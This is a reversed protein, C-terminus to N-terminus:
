TNVSNSRKKFFNSNTIRWISDYPPIYKKRQVPKEYDLDVLESKKQRAPIEELAYLIDNHMAFVEGEMTTIVSVKTKPQIFVQTGNKDFTGYYKSNIKIGNGCDVTRKAFTVLSTEIQEKSPQKEWCSDIGDTIAFKQNFKPLYSKLFENAQELTKVDAEKLEEPLRGQLTKFSREVRPKFQPISSCQLEIGLTRCVQQYQTMTDEAEDKVKKNEYEFVTRKDTKVLCPIGYKELFQRTIEYYAARTEQWDFYAGVIIGTADDIALHLQAKRTGFWHHQCADMQLEEGFYKCRPQTPHTTRTYKETELTVLIEKQVDNLKKLNRLRKRIANRTRHWAQPSFVDHENLLTRVSTDSAKIKEIEELKECFFLVNLGFYKDRYLKWIKEKNLKNGPAHGRNKHILDDAPNEVLRAKYRKITRESKKLKAAAWQITQKGEVVQRMVEVKHEDMYNM